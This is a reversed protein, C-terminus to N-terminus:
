SWWTQKRDKGGDTSRRTAFRCCNFIFNLM